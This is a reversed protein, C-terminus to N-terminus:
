FDFCWSEHHHDYSLLFLRTIVNACNWTFGCFIYYNSVKEFLYFPFCKHLGNRIPSAVTGWLLNWDTVTFSSRGECLWVRTWDWSALRLRYCRRRELLEMGILWAGDIEMWGDVGIGNGDLFWLRRVSIPNIVKNTTIIAVCFFGGIEVTGGGFRGMRCKLGKSRTTYHVLGDCPNHAKRQPQPALFWQRIVYPIDM